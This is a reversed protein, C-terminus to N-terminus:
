HYTVQYFNALTSDSSHINDVIDQIKIHCHSFKVSEECVDTVTCESVNLDALEIPSVFLVDAFCPKTLDITAWLIFHRHCLEYCCIIVKKPQIKNNDTIIIDLITVM